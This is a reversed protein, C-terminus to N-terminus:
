VYKLADVSSLNQENKDLLHGFPWIDTTSLFTNKRPPATETATEETTPIPVGVVSFTTLHDSSCTIETDTESTVALGETSWAESDEDWYVCSPTVSQVSRTIPFSISIPNSLDSVNLQQGAFTLFLFDYAM